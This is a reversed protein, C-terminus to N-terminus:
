GAAVLNAEIAAAAESALPIAAEADWAAETEALGAQAPPPAPAGSRARGPIPNTDPLQNSNAVM